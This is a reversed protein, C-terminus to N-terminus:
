HQFKISSNKKILRHKKQLGGLLWLNTMEFGGPKLVRKDKKARLRVCYGIKSAHEM